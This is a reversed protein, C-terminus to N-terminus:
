GDWDGTLPIGGADGFRFSHNWWGPTLTDRLHWTHGDFKRMGPTDDGDHDWDGAFPEEGWLGYEFVTHIQVAGDNMDTFHWRAFQGEGRIVATSDCGDGDWDGAVIQGGPWPYTAHHHTVGSSLSDTLFLEGTEDRWVGPTDVGDCNWDGVIPEDTPLGYTVQYDVPLAGSIGNSMTFSAIGPRFIGISDREDAIWHGALPRDGPNGFHAVSSAIPVEPGFQNTLYFRQNGPNYVGFRDGDPPDYDSVSTHAIANCGTRLL